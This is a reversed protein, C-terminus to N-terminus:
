SCMWYEARRTRQLGVKIKFLSHTIKLTWVAVLCIEASLFKVVFLDWFSQWCRESMRKRWRRGWCGCGGGRPSYKHTVSALMVSIPRHISSSLFPFHYTVSLSPTPQLCRPYCILIFALLHCAPYPSTFTPSHQFSDPLYDDDKAPVNLVFFIKALGNM